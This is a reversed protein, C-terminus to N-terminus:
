TAELYLTSSICTGLITSLTTHRRPPFPISLLLVSYVLLSLSLSTFPEWNHWVPVNRTEGAAVTGNGQPINIHRSINYAAVALATPISFIIRYSGLLRLRRYVAVNYLRKVDRTNPEQPRPHLKVRGCQYRILLHSLPLLPCLCQFLHQFATQKLSISSSTSLTACLIIFGMGSGGAESFRRFRLVFRSRCKRWKFTSTTDSIFWLRLKYCQAYLGRYWIKNWLYYM